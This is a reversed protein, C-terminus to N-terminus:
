DGTEVKLIEQMWDVFIADDDADVMSTLAEWPTGGRYCYILHDIVDDRLDMAISEILYDDLSFLKGCDDFTFYDDNPNFDESYAMQVLELPTYHSMLSNFDKMDFYTADEFSGDFSNIYQILYSLEKGNLQEVYNRIAQERTMKTM